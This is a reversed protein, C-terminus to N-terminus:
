ASLSERVRETSFPCSSTAAYTRMRERSNRRLVMGRVSSKATKGGGSSYSSMIKAARFDDEM